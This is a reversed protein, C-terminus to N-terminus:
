HFLVIIVKQQRAAMREEKTLKKKGDEKINLNEKNNSTM